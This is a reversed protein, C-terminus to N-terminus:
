PGRAPQHDPAASMERNGGRRSSWADNSAPEPPAIGFPGDPPWVFLPAERLPLLPSTTPSCTGSRRPSSEPSTSRRSEPAASSASAASTASTASPTPPHRLAHMTAELMAWRLYKPGHKSLPGRRDSEGSQNVRPCLGTYGCLKKPSPFRTVDGIEAAITFALVWGIGPVTLLLPVYPHNASGARLQRNVEAIQRDLDDILAISADVTGRWPQPIELWDLLERGAAGFLDTVPCPEGFTMLTSHIRHKLMSRHKVLHLRFRAQERESRVAPDPLWIAPVLDRESLVALVRADIKDTKCALPALGKVKQADAILVDWGYRELTDHVFRAGTMSEIVGRGPEGYDLVRRALAGVGDHDSPAAFEEVIEGQDSLLCVDLRNRSLDLGAHLM